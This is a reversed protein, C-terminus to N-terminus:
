STRQDSYDELHSVHGKVNGKVFVNIILPGNYSPAFPKIILFFIKEIFGM